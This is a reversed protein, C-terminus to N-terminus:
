AYHNIIRSLHARPLLLLCTSCLQYCIFNWNFSSVNILIKHLYTIKSNLPLNRMTSVLAFNKYIELLIAMSLEISVKM